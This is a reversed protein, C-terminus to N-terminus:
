FLLERSHFMCLSILNDRISLHEKCQDMDEYSEVISVLIKRFAAVSSKTPAVTKLNYLRTSKGQSLVGTYLSYAAKSDDDVYVTLTTKSRKEDGNLLVQIKHQFKDLTVSPPTPIGLFNFAPSSYLNKLTTRSTKRPVSVTDHFEIDLLSAVNMAFISALARHADEDSEFLYKYTEIRERKTKRIKKWKITSLWVSSKTKKKEDVDNFVLESNDFDLYMSIGNFVFADPSDDPLLNETKAYEHVAFIVDDLTIDKLELEVSPLRKIDKAIRRATGHDATGCYEYAVSSYKDTFVVRNNRTVYFFSDIVGFIFSRVNDDIRANPKSLSALVDAVKQPIKKGSKKCSTTVNFAANRADKTTFSTIHESIASLITKGNIRTHSNSIMDIDFSCLRAFEKESAMSGTVTHILGAKCHNILSPIMEYVVLNKKKVKLTKHSFSSTIAAKGYDKDYNLFKIIDADPSFVRAPRIGYVVLVGAEMSDVTYIPILRNGKRLGIDGFDSSVKTDKKVKFVGNEDKEVISDNLVSDKIDVWKFSLYENKEKKIKSRLVNLCKEGSMLDAVEFTKGVFDIARNINKFFVDEAVYLGNEITINTDICDNIYELDINTLV